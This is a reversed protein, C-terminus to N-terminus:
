REEGEEKIIKKIEIKIHLDLIEYKREKEKNEM